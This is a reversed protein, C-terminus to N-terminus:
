LCVKVFDHGLPTLEILGKQIDYTVDPENNAKKTNNFSILNSFVEYDFDNNNIYTGHKIYILGLRELNVLSTSCVKVSDLNIDNDKIQSVLVNHVITMTGVGKKEKKYNVIPFQEKGNFKKSLYIINQADIVSMQKIMEVFAPHIDKSKRNDISSAVLSSFMSRLIEEGIYYKSAELAPGLIYIEPEVLNEPPVEKGKNIIEQKYKEIDVKNLFKEVEAKNDIWGFHLYWAATLTAGISKGLPILAEELPKKVFDFDSM